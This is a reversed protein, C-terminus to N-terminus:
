KCESWRDGIETDAVLPVRLTVATEMEHKVLNAAYEAIDEDVEFLLEDHVQLVMKIKETLGERILRNRINRM